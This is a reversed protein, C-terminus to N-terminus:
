LLPKQNQLTELFYFFNESVQLQFWSFRQTESWINFRNVFYINKPKIM